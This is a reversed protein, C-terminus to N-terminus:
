IILLMLGRGELSYLCPCRFTRAWICPLVDGFDHIKLAVTQFRM